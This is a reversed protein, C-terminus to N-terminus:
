CDRLLSLPLQHCRFNPKCFSTMPCLLLCHFHDMLRKIQHYPIETIFCLQSLIHLIITRIILLQVFIRDIKPSITTSPFPLSCVRQATEESANSASPYGEFTTSQSILLGPFFSIEFDHENLKTRDQTQDGSLLGAGGTGSSGKLFTYITSLASRLRRWEESAETPGMLYAETIMPLIFHQLRSLQQQYTFPELSSM